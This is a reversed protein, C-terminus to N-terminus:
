SHQSVCVCARARMCVHMVYVCTRVCMVCMDCMCMRLLEKYSRLWVGATSTEDTPLEQNEGECVTLAVPSLCPPCM